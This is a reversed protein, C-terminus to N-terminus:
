EAVGGAGLVGGGGGVPNGAKEEAVDGVLRTLEAPPLGRWWVNRRYMVTLADPPTVEALALAGAQGVAQSIQQEVEPSLEVDTVIFTFQYKSM